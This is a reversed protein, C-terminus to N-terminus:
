SVYGSFPTDNKNWKRLFRDPLQPWVPTEFNGRGVVAILKHLSPWIKTCIELFFGDDDYTVTLCNSLFIGHRFLM